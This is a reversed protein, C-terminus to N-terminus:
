KKLSIREILRTGFWYFWAGTTATVMAEAIYVRTEQPVNFFIWMTVATGLYTLTPRTLSRVAAVWAYGSSLNSEAEVSAKFSKEKTQELESAAKDKAIAGEIKAREIDLKGLEIKQKFEERAKWIGLGQTAVSGLLGLLGGSAVNGIVSAWEM